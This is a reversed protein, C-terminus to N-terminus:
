VGKAIEIGGIENADRYDITVSVGEEGPYLTYFKEARLGWVRCDDKWAGAKTCCDLVLKSLNDIDGRGVHIHGALSKSKSKLLPMRFFLSVHIPCDVPANIRSFKSTAVLLVAEKWAKCNDKEYAWAHGNRITIRPRPQPFPIGPVDFQITM